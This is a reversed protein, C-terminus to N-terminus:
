PQRGEGLRSQASCASEAASSPARLTVPALSGSPAAPHPGGAPHFPWGWCTVPPAVCAASVHGPVRAGSGWGPCFGPAGPCRARVQLTGLFGLDISHESFLEAARAARACPLGAHHLPTVGRMSQITRHPATRHPATRHPATRHPASRHPASPPASPPSATLSAAGISSVSLLHHGASVGDCGGFQTSCGHGYPRRGRSCGHTDQLPRWPGAHQLLQHQRSILRRRVM